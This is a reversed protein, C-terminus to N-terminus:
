YGQPAPSANGSDSGSDGGSNGAAPAALPVIKDIMCRQRVNGDSFSVFDGPTLCFMGGVSRVAITETFRLGICRSIFSVTFKHSPTDRIMLSKEDQAPKFDDLNRIWVCSNAAQAAGASALMALAVCSAILKRM